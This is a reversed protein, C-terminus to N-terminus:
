PKNLQRTVPIASQAIEGAAEKSYRGRISTQRDRKRTSLTGADVGDIKGLHKQYNEVNGDQCPLDLERIIEYTM